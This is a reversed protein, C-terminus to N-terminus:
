FAARRLERGTLHERVIRLTEHGSPGDFVIRGDEIMVIRRSVEVVHELDHSSAIITTGHEENLKRLLVELQTRSRPDLNTFPEDLILLRPQVMMAAVLGIKKRNGQSYDRILKKKGKSGADLEVFRDHRSLRAVLENRGLGYTVGVFKWYEWPDLYPILSSEELYSSTKSRWSLSFDHVSTDDLHVNGRQMKLLGLMLLLLTTKGAGNNGVLGVREGEAIQLNPVVLEFGSEYRKYLQSVHVNM